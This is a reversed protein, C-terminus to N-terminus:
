AMPWALAGDILQAAFGVGLYYLLKGTVISELSDASFVFTVESSFIRSLGFFVLGLFLLWGVLMLQLRLISRLSVTTSRNTTM